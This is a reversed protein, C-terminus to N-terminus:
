RVAEIITERGEPFVQPVWSNQYAHGKAPGGSHCTVCATTAAGQLTDDLQNGWATSGADVTTAMAQTQDPM